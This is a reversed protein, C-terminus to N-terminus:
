TKVERQKKELVFFHHYPYLPVNLEEIIRFKATKITKRIKSIPYNMKGIEWYHRGNFNHRKPFPLRLVFDKKGVFPIQFSVGFGLSHYPLSIIAYRTTINYFNNLAKFVMDFPIHELVQCCLIIDYKGINKNKNLSTLELVIDPKLKRDFDGTTINFGFKKLYNSVTKNGIGIEIIRPNYINKTLKKILSIQQWYSQWRYETDYDGYYTEPKEKINKNM